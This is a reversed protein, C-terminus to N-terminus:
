ARGWILDLERKVRHYDWSVMVIKGNHMICWQSGEYECEIVANVIQERNSFTENDILHFYRISM